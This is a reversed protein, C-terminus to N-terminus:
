HKWKKFNIKVGHMVIVGLITVRQLVHNECLLKTTAKQLDTHGTLQPKTVQRETVVRFTSNRKVGDTEKFHM